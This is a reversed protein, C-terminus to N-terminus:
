HWRRGKHYRRHNYRKSYRYPRHYRRHGYYRYRPRYYRGYYPYGYYGYYAPYGFGIYFGRHRRWRRHVQEVPSDVSAAPKVALKGAVNAAAPATSALAFGAILGLAMMIKRM